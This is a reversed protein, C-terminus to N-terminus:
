GDPPVSRTVTRFRRVPRGAGAAELAENLRGALDGSLLELEQAWVASRCAVTVIGGREAVPEAERAVTDGVAERWHEQIRALPGAPAVPAIVGSLVAHLPRPASRRV